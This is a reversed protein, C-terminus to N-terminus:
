DHILKVTKVEGFGTSIRAYLTGHPLDKGDIHVTHKGAELSSGRGDGWVLRGLDDFISITTYAMRNLTFGLSVEKVFPNPHSTVEALFMQDPVIPSSVSSHHLLFGLGISDLPPYTTDQGYHKLDAIAQNYEFMNNGSDCRGNEAAYKIIALGHNRFRGYEGHGHPEYAHILNNLCNCFYLDSPNLFIVSILWNRYDAKINSDISSYLMDVDGSLKDFVTWAKDSSYCLDIYHKLSDYQKKADAFDPPTFGYYMWQYLEECTDQLDDSSQVTLPGGYCSGACFFVACCAIFFNIQGKM